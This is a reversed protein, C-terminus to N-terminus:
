RTNACMRTYADREPLDRAAVAAEELCRGVKDPFTNLRTPPTPIAGSGQGFPGNIVPAQPPPPLPAPIRSGPEPFTPQAAAVGTLLAILVVAAGRM